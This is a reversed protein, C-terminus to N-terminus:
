PVTSADTLSGSNVAVPGESGLSNLAFTSSGGTLMLAPTGLAAIAVSPDVAHGSADFFLRRTTLSIDGATLFSIGPWLSFNCVDGTYFDGFSDNGLWFDQGNMKISFGGGPGPATGNPLTAQDGFYMVTDIASDATGIIPVWVNDGIPPSWFPQAPDSTVYQTSAGAGDSVEYRFITGNPDYFQTPFSAASNIVFMLQFGASWTSKFFGFFSLKTSDASALSNIKLGTTGDFHVAGTAGGPPAAVVAM